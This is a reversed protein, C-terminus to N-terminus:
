DARFEGIRPQGSGSVTPSMIGKKLSMGEDNNDFAAFTTAFYEWLM